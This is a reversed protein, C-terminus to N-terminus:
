IAAAQQPCAASSSTSPSTGYPSGCAPTSRTWWGQRPLSGFPSNPPSGPGPGRSSSSIMRSGRWRLVVARMGTNVSSPSAMPWRWLNLIFISIPSILHLFVAFIAELAELEQEQVEKTDNKEM